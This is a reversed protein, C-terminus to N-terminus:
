VKRNIQLARKQYNLFEKLFKPLQVKWIKLCKLQQSGPIKTNSVSLVM